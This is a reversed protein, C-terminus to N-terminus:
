SLLSDILGSGLQSHLHDEIIDSSQYQGDSITHQAIKAELIERQAGHLHESGVVMHSALDATIAADTVVASTLADGAIVHGILQGGFVADALDSM